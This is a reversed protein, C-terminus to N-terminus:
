ANQNVAFQVLLNRYATYLILVVLILLRISLLAFGILSVALLVANVGLIERDSLVPRKLAHRPRLKPEEPNTRADCWDNYIFIHAIYLFNVLTFAFLRALTPFSLDPLAPVAGISPYASVLLVDFYRIGWVLFGLKAALGYSEVRDEPHDAGSNIM